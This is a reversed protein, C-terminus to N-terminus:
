LLKWSLSYLFRMLMLDLTSHEGQLGEPLTYKGLVVKGVQAWDQIASFPRSSGWRDMFHARTPMRGERHLMNTEGETWSATFSWIIQCFCCVGHLIAHLLEKGEIIIWLLFFNMSTHCYPMFIYISCDFKENIYYEVLPVMQGSTSFNYFWDFVMLVGTIKFFNLGNSESIFLKFQSMPTPCYEKKRKIFHQVYGAIKKEIRLYLVNCTNNDVGGLIRAYSILITLVSLTIAFNCLV